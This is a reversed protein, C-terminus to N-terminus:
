YRRHELHRMRLERRREFAMQHRQRHGGGMGIGFPIFLLWWLDWGANMCVAIAAAWLMVVFANWGASRRRDTGTCGGVPRDAVVGDSPDAGPRPDAIRAAPRTAPRIAAPHPLPLDGFLPELDTAYRASLAAGLREDFEAADLRGSAMHERLCEAAQDREQDGIRVAASASM